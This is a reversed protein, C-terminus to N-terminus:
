GLENIGQYVLHSLPRFPDGRGFGPRRNGGAPHHPAFSLFCVRRGRGPGGGRPHIGGGPRHAGVGRGRREPGPLVQALSSRQEDEYLLLKAAEAPAAALVEGLAAPPLIEPVRAAGCQKLAQGALRRWRELKARGGGAKPVARQTLVPRVQDVALETLKVALLDMAPAKLLGPCLVLRPSPPAAAEVAEVRVAGGSKDLRSLVGRARRGQGDILEVEAGPALRLVKRAHAAEEAPLAVEGVALAEPEVLFRRLSM